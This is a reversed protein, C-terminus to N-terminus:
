WCKIFYSNTFTEFHGSKLAENLADDENFLVYREFDYSRGINYLEGYKPTYDESYIVEPIQYEPLPYYFYCNLGVEKIAKRIELNSLAKYKENKGEISVFYNIDKEMKAGSFYRMGYKNELAIFIYGNEKLLSKAYELYSNIDVSYGLNGIILIKDYKKDPKFDMFQCAYIKLNESENRFDNVLCKTKSDDLSDVSNALEILKSTLTGYGSGVELVDDDLKIDCISLLNTKCSALHYYIKSDMDIEGKIFSLIKNDLDKNVNLENKYFTFDVSM